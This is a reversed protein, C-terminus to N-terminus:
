PYKFTKMLPTPRYQMVQMGRDQATSKSHHMQEDIM